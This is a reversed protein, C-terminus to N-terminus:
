TENKPALCMLERRCDASVLRGGVASAQRNEGGRQISSCNRRCHISMSRNYAKVLKRVRSKGKRTACFVLVPKGDAWTLLTPWLEKDLRSNLVWENAVEYSKIQKVLKVPRYEEGFQEILQNQVCQRPSRVQFVTAKAMEKVPVDAPAKM